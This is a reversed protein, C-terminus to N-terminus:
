EDAERGVNSMGPPCGDLSGPHYCALRGEWWERGMGDDPQSICSRHLVHGARMGVSIEDTPLDVLHM